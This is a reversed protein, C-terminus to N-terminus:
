FFVKFSPNNQAVTQEALNNGPLDGAALDILVLQAIREM